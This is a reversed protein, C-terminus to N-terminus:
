LINKIRTSEPWECFLKLIDLWGYMVALHLVTYQTEVTRIGKVFVKFHDMCYKVITPNGSRTFDIIADIISVKNDVLIQAIEQSYAKTSSSSVSDQLVTRMVKVNRTVTYVNPNIIFLLRVLDVHKNMTAWLLPPPEAEVANYYKSTGDVSAVDWNNLGGLDLHALASYSVTVRNLWSPSLVYLWTWCRLDRTDCLTWILDRIPDDKSLLGNKVHLYWYTAAYHLFPHTQLLKIRANAQDTSSHSAVVPVKSMDNLLLYQICSSALVQHASELRISHCWPGFSIREPYVETEDHLIFERATQHVLHVKEQRFALFSGGLRRLYSETSLHLCPSLDKTSRHDPHISLAYDLETLSLPRAAAVIIQLLAKTQAVASPQNLLQGLFTAYLANISRDNLVALLEQESAGEEAQQKLLDMVLAVWLFTQDDGQLLKERLRIMTSQQVLEEDVLAKLNKEIVLKIDHLISAEQDEGRVRCKALKRLRTAISNLPRGTIIMKLYPAVKLNNECPKTCTDYYQAISALLLSQTKSDCEDFGDLICIVNTLGDSVVALFLRWLAEFQTFIADGKNEHEVIVSRPLTSRASLLQHLLARLASIADAQLKNDNTFFFHCVTGALSQQSSQARLEDIITSSLVSKGCGADATLWLLTCNSEERWRLYKPNTFFWDCTGTARPPNRAKHSEYDTSGDALGEDTKYLAHLIKRRREEVPVKSLGSSNM